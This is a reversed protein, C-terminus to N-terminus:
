KIKQLLHPHFQLERCRASQFTESLFRLGSNIALSSPAVSSGRLKCGQSSQSKSELTRKESMHKRSDKIKFEEQFSTKQTLILLPIAARRGLCLLATHSGQSKELRETNQWHLTWKTFSIEDGQLHPALNESCCRNVSRQVFTNQTELPLPAPVASSFISEFAGDQILATKKKTRLDPESTRADPHLGPLMTRSSHAWTAIGLSYISSPLQWEFYQQASFLTIPQKDITCSIADGTTTQRQFSCDWLLSIILARMKSRQHVLCKVKSM